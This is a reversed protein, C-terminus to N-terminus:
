AVAKIEAPRCPQATRWIRPAAKLNLYWSLLERQSSIGLRRYARKRYTMVSEEGIGLDLATGITSLGYLIRACVHAERQSLQEPAVAIRGEIEALSSISCSLREERELMDIHKGILSLLLPAARCLDHLRMPESEAGPVAISLGIWDEDTEKCLLVKEGARLRARVAQELDEESLAAVDIGSSQEAADLAPTRGFPARRSPQALLLPALDVITGAELRLVTCREAGSFLRVQEILRAIFDSTGIAAILRRMGWRESLCEMAAIGDM